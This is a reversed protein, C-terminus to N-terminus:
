TETKTDAMPRAQVVMVSSQSAAATAPRQVVTPASPAPQAPQPQTIPPQGASPQQGPLPVPRTLRGLVEQRPGFMEVQGDRLVLVKDVHNMINPRHSIVVVTQKDAKMSKLAAVLAEEGDADLNSNPEDLVLFPPTDYLARALGIRQRQGGSLGGGAPGIVTDYGMPLRLVMEHVGARKAATVVADANVEGFRAINDKVSGEFLEVDQPLYGIYPGVAERNWTFVDAGDLRVTGSHSPWVGVLCRALTSKGAASPGIIGLSDGANIAFSVGKLAPLRAGPPVAIVKEVHLHGVPKPLSMSSQIPQYQSLLEDLRGYATRASVFGRWTGIAQEIPALARGMIISAAIMTGPSIIQFIALYAGAGLIATQLLLRVFKTMGSLGGARDSAISQMSLAKEQERQWRDRIGPMMGMAALVEANRLSAEAFAGAKVTHRSATQLPKRTTYETALAMCFLVVAGALAIAGLLPHMAFVIIIFIPAWPGDFFAFPGTSTLFQRVTDLDRLSQSRNAAPRRLNLDFLADFVRSGLRMDIYGGVRVLIRSRVVELLGMVLLMAGTIVTLLLLTAESRSALVRDYVQLMYLPSVLMLLNIVFSFGGVLLFAGRTSALASRLENVPNASAPRNM